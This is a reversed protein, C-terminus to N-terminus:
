NNMPGLVDVVVDVGDPGLEDNGQPRKAISVQYTTVEM